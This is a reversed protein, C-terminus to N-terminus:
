PLCGTPPKPLAPDAAALAASFPVVSQASGEGPGPVSVAVPVQRDVTTWVTAGAMPRAVWCVGSLPFVTDTPAVVAAASGCTVTIAPSGYAANQEAGASVPRRQAAGVAGPLRAIVARCVEAAAPPLPPAAMSVASTPAQASPSLEHTAPTAPTALGHIALASVGAVLLAAPIAVLTALRAAARRVPDARVPDTSV